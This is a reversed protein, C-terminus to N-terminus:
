EEDESRDDLSETWNPNRAYWDDSHTEHATQLGLIAASAAALRDDDAAAWYDGKHRVLGGRELRALTPNISGRPVDTQEHLEAPTFGVGRHKILFSLLTRANTEETLEVRGHDPSYEEFDVPM